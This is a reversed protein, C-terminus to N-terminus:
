ILLWSTSSVMRRAWTSALSRPNHRQPLRDVESNDYASSMSWLCFAKDGEGGGNDGNNGGM